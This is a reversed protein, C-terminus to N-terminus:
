KNWSESFMQEVQQVEADTFPAFEKERARASLRGDNQQLFRWLLDLKKTPMDVISEVGKVFRDYAEFYSVEAPLDHEVTEAM